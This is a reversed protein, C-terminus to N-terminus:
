KIKAKGVFRYIRVEEGDRQVIDTKPNYDHKDLFAQYKQNAELEEKPKAEDALRKDEAEKAEQKEREQKALAEAEGQKKGEEIAALRNTEANAEAEEADKIRQIESSNFAMQDQYFAVWQKDDMALIEDDTVERCHTLLNLQDRKMPLLALRAERLKAQKDDDLVKKLSIETDISLALYGDEKAKIAKPIENIQRRFELGQETLTTRIKVMVKHAEKVAELDSLDVKNADAVLAKITAETYDFKVTELDFIPKAVVVETKDTM